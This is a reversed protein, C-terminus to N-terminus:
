RWGLELEVNLIWPFLKILPRYWESMVFRRLISLPMDVHGQIFCTIIWRDRYRSNEWSIAGDRSATLM